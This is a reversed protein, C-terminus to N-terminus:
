AWALGYSRDQRLHTFAVRVSGSADPRIRPRRLTPDAVELPLEDALVRVQAPVADPGFQVTLVFADCPHRPTCVYFPEMEPSPFFRLTVRHGEGQRLLRPLRVPTSVRTASERQHSGEMTGGGIVQPMVDRPMTAGGPLAELVGKPYSHSLSVEDLASVRSVVCREEIVETVERDLLLLTRLSSTTWPPDGGDMRDPGTATLATEALRELAADVYRRATRPDRDLVAAARSLRTGFRENEVGELGLAIRSLRASDMPLAGTLESLRRTVKGRQMLPDEGEDIGAVHRLAAGIRVPALTDKVGFGKRLSKLERLVDAASINM